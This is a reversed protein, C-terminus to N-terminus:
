PQNSAYWQITRKLGEETSLPEFDIYSYMKSVDILRNKAGIPKTSDLNIRNEVSYEKSINKALNLISVQEKTAINIPGIINKEVLLLTTYVLDKVYIFSRTQSGDGWIEITEGNSVKRIMAPIVRSANTEFSDRPGYVNSPRLTYIQLDRQKQYFESLIESFIKSLVYGNDTFNFYKHYDDDETINSPANQSYIETSSTLVVNPIQAAVCSNLVNSVLRNNVDLIEAANEIKYQTNGDLAACHIFADVKNASYMCISRIDEYNLIDVQVYKVNENSEYMSMEKSSKRYLCIVKAGLTALEEVFHSGIFGLGGSVIVTKNQWYSKSM